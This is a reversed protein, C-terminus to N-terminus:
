VITIDGATLGPAGGLTAVLQSGGAGSGDADYYLQGTSANYIVRDDADQGASLGAGSRFAGPGTLGSFVADDFALDDEASIFGNIADANATGMESFVFLDSGVGGNLTDIGTGGALTDNGGRGDLFNRGSNGTMANNLSNGASNTNATGTFTINEVPSPTAFSESAFVTDIGGSDQIVDGPNVFYTDNGLLGNMTDNGALGDITDNGNTGTLSDNGSTGTLTGSPPPPTGSGNIIVIDTATVSGQVTAILQQAGAGNGDADYWLQGTASNFIVRDDSDLASTGARFRGDGAAFNGSAGTNAHASGDLVLKDSGSAFAVLVDANASGAAEAFMFSDAGAGGDITDNGAGGTISDDGDGGNLGNAAANGIVINAVTNGSGSIAAAGILTLNNVWDPLTYAISSRVLDNSGGGELEVVVDGPNDVIFVDDHLGGEMSDAGAGGDLTDNGALGQLTDNGDTGLLNDNGSTGTRVVGAPGSNAIVVDTAGLSLVSGWTTQLTAILQATGAGNGDADYWLQGTATNFIVRDDADQAASGLRFRADGATFNGAAGANAHVRGDLVVKDEGSVFDALLDANATGPSVTFMFDDRSPTGGDWGGLLTDNGAAGDLTDSGAEGSLWNAVGNGTLRDNFPSANINEIGTVTARGSGAVGGGVITGAGLDAVIASWQYGGVMDIDAGGDITDDGIDGGTGWYHFGDQGADGFLLDSGQGGFIVDYGDGGHIEDNGYDSGEGGWMSDGHLHDDNDGGLLTDNGGGGALEPGAFYDGGPNGREVGHNAVLRDDFAGGLARQINTFSASGSGGLGGGTVTGDRFDIVVASRAYSVGDAGYFSILNEGGEGGHGAGDVRDSGYNGSGAQFRFVDGGDGGILTDNGDGGDLNNSMHWRQSGLILNDQANGTGFVSVFEPSGDAYYTLPAEMRLTEMGAALTHAHVRAIVTDSGGADTIVVRAAGEAHAGVIYVDDGLGGDMTDIDSTGEAGYLTDSGDGGSMSDSGAGGQLVDHSGAGVLTDNGGLGELTDNGGGGDLRENGATGTLRVGPSGANSAVLDAAALAPAGELTAILQATGAGSGDADYYLEGTSANYIVRDDADHGSVAGAAAWFRVDANGFNGLAGLGAHGAADLAIKDVGSAFDAIRDASAAGPATFLFRDVGDGGTLSDNGTEGSLLDSAGGGLLTDNGAGGRLTDDGQDSQLLNGGGNGILLHNQYGGVRVAEIGTFTVAAGPNDRTDGVRGAVLDATVSFDTSYYEVTDFGDGGHITDPGFPLRTDDASWLYYLSFLDDGTGGDMTDAGLEGTLTDNGAGGVLSDDGERAFLSDNGDLGEITDEGSTGELFDNGSTGTIRNGTPVGGGPGVVILDAASLAPAGQLTAILLSGGSGSGDADYYLAGTATNYIVRDDADQGSTMGAGARFRGDGSALAGEAGIQGFVGNDFVLRDTGSLFGLIHDANANGPASAFVYNDAGAGGILTDSGLGGQITDAGDGSELLNGAGNGIIRDAGAGTRAREIVVGDAIILHQDGDSGTNSWQRANLDILAAGQNSWDITDIGGADWLTTFIIEGADWRYLDDGTRTELNAGYLYQVAAVDLLMPTMPYNATGPLWNQSMVTYAEYNLAPDMPPVGPHTLGLAHGIEHLGAYYGFDGPTVEDWYFAFYEDNFWIDGSAASNGPFNAWAAASSPLYDSLGFRLDGAVTASDVVEVFEIDAVEGWWQLAERIATKHAETMDHWGDVYPESNPGYVTESYRSEANRFSYSLRVGTGLEEGWKEGLLLGNINPDASMPVITSTGRTEPTDPANGNVVLIDIASLAPTGQLTAIHVAADSGSGDRDYFLQGTSSNYIIRDDADHGSVAGAASWFRADGAVFNGSAGIATFGFGNLEIKDVGPAFDEIVDSHEAQQSLGFSDAGAGGALTDHGWAGHLWDNGGRGQLYNALSNGGIRDEFAGGFFNEISGGRIEGAGGDGGGFIHFEDIDARVGSRAGAYDITDIGDGGNVTDIGPAALDGFRFLDDGANGVLSDNGALGELTDNGASGTLTDNGATGVLLLGSAGNVVGIDTAALSPVGQLTAILQAAGGGNGDADYWLQGTATNYIVRDDADQAATGLRFRADGASFSGSAGVNAHFAGDILLRDQGSVFGILVDANAAGPAVAFVITDAGGGGTITDVGGGGNLVNAADNGIIINELATGTGNIAATGTLTLHNTWDPLVYTVSSRVEDNSGGGELEVVVDGANDVIFVDDNLGGHMTDAGAGGNLTDNGALGEMSDNGSTGTLSDNGDTGRIVGGGSPPTGFVWFDSAVVSRGAPLTAILQQAGAGNGDADYFLQGTASNFIIRDDADQAATGARFRADSSSFRGTAGINTFATADLQINDWGTAFDFLLDANASGMARLAFSDQGSGGGVDDNGTGGELWDNGNNGRVTDNGADGSISDNGDAGSLSDSSSTGVITDNATTGTIVAM